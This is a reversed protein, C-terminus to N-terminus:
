PVTALVGRLIETLEDAHAPDLAGDHQAAFGVTRFRAFKAERWGMREDRFCKLVFDRREDRLAPSPRALAGCKVLTVAARCPAPLFARKHAGGILALGNHVHRRMRPLLDALRFGDDEGDDADDSDEDPSESSEGDSDAGMAGGHRLFDGDTAVTPANMRRAINNYTLAALRDHEARGAFAPYAEPNASDIMVVHLVQEGRAELLSAMKLAIMGGMSWGGLLYPGTPQVEAQILSIYQSAVEDLSSPLRQAGKGYIPSSIGYVPRDGDEEEEEEEQDNSDSDSSEATSLPGLNLYPLALGSVAHILFLPTLTSSEDGQLHLIPEM